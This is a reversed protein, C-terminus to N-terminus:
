EKQDGGSLFARAKLLVAGHNLVGKTMLERLKKVETCERLFPILEDDFFNSLDALMQENSMELHCGALILERHNPFFDEARYGLHCQVYDPFEVQGFTKLYFGINIYYYNGWDSHQLNVVVIVDSGNLFWSQGKKMFRAREFPLAFSKKFTKKDIM